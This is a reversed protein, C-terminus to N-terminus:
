QIILGDLLTSILGWIEDVSGEIVDGVIVFYSNKINKKVEGAMKVFVDPAKQKCIRGVM